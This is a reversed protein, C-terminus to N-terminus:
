DDQRLHRPLLFDEYLDRWTPNNAEILALKQKRGFRKLHKERAIATLMDSHQEWWVLLKCGYQKTFGDIRGERHELGRQLLDSTVGVYITGNRQSAMIYVAIFEYRGM